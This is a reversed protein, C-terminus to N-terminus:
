SRGSQTDPTQSGFEKTEIELWLHHAATSWGFGLFMAAAWSKTLDEFSLRLFAPGPMAADILFMVGFLGVGVAFYKMASRSAVGPRLFLALCAVEVSAWALMVFHDPLGIWWAIREHVQFRDDAALFGFVAAQSLAFRRHARLEPSATVSAGFLLVLACAALLFSSLSTNIGFLPSVDEIDSFFPRV